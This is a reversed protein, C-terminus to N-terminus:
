TSVRSCYLSNAQELETTKGLTHINIFDDDRDKKVWIKSYTKEM